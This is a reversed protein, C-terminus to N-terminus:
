KQNAKMEDRKRVNSDIEAKYMHEDGAFTKPDPKDLVIKNKYMGGYIPHKQKLRM